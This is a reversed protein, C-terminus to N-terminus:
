NLYYYGDTTLVKQRSITIKVNSLKEQQRRKREENQKEIEQIVKEDSSNKHLGLDSCLHKKLLERDNKYRRYLSSM